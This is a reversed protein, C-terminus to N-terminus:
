CSSARVQAALVGVAEGPDALSRMFNVHMVRKFKKLLKDTDAAQSLAQGRRARAEDAFEQLREEFAESTVGLVEAPNGLAMLPLQRQKALKRLQKARAADDERRVSELSALRQVSGEARMEGRTILHPVARLEAAKSNLNFQAGNALLLDFTTLCSTRTVDIGDEGYYFQVVSGDCDRVTLDYHVRLSELNKVLCRQLYGSRSTKVTTDVLRCGGACLATCAGDCSPPGLQCCKASDELCAQLRTVCAGCAM